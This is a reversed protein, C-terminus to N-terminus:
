HNGVDIRLAEFLKNSHIKHRLGLITKVHKSQFREIMNFNTESIYIWLVVGMSYNQSFQKYM